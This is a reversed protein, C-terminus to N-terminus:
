KNSPSKSPAILYRYEQQNSQLPQSNLSFNPIGLVEFLFDFNYSQPSYSLLEDKLEILTHSSRDEPNSLVM